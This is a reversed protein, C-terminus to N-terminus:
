NLLGKSGSGGTIGRRGIPMADAAARGASAGAHNTRARQTIARASSRRSAFRDDIYKQVKVLAGDLRLLATSTGGPVSERVCRAEAERVAAARVEDFREAIRKTFALLWAERYGRSEPISAPISRGSPIGYQKRLGERFNHRARFSMREAAPVLIGYVYEAVTAHSRTGVFWIQNSGPRLLWSCLHAKAVIRALSEQWAHRMRTKEIGYKALDVAVEIVPDQDGARAYDIDTPHLENELLMRNIAGAFAEAENEATQDGAAARRAADERSKQMKVLKRLVKERHDEERNRLAQELELTFEEHPLSHEFYRLHALEHAATHWVLEPTRPADCWVGDVSARMALEVHGSKSCLGLADAMAVTPMRM